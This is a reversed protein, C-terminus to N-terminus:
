QSSKGAIGQKMESGTYKCGTGTGTDRVVPPSSNQEFAGANGPNENTNCKCAMLICVSLNQFASGEVKAM